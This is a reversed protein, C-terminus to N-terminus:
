EVRFAAILRELRADDLPVDEIAEYMTETAPLADAGDGYQLTHSLFVERQDDPPNGLARLLSSQFADRVAKRPHDSM